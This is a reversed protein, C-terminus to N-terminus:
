QAPVAGLTATLTRPGDRRAVRLAVQAGPQLARLVRRLDGGRRVPTDNISTVIDQVQLGAQAAPSGPAVELVIVGERAPLRFQAAMEPEVDAYSVGLFALQVRGTTLIQQAVNAALNIPVAFGLGVAVVPSGRPQLVVTNIGIVRGRSDLLPGGSNGPNIAADTQILGELRAGPLERNVASIVGTTVTRELGLPNGIAIAIQGPELLDSDGIAAAPLDTAAVRVVAIDLGRDGGLVEGPLRRGDALGIQVTRATGVVHWNTLIIGDSRIIVGSGAGARPVTVSVVAPSVQRAVQITVQEAAGPPVATAAGAPAVGGPQPATAAPACGAVLLVSVLLAAGSREIRMMREAEWELRMM